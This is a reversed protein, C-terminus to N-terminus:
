ALQSPFFYEDEFGNDNKVFVIHTEGAFGMDMWHRIPRFKIVWYKKGITLGKVNEMICVLSATPSM